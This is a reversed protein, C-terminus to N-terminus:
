FTSSSSSSSSGGGGSASFWYRLNFTDITTSSNTLNKITVTTDNPNSLNSYLTGFSLWDGNSVNIITPDVLSTFQTWGTEPSPNGGFSSSSSDVRYYLGGMAYASFASLALARNVGVIQQTTFRPGIQQDLDSWNPAPDIVVDSAGSGRRAVYQVSGGYM